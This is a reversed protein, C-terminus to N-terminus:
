AGSGSATAGSAPPPIAGSTTGSTTGSAAAAAAAAAAEQAAIAAAIRAAEENWEIDLAAKILLLVGAVSVGDLPTQYVPDVLGAGYSKTFKDSFDVQLIKMDGGLERYVGNFDLYNKCNFIARCAGTTPDYFLQVQDSMLESYMGNALLKFRANTTPDNDPLSSGVAMLAGKKLYPDPHTTVGVITM